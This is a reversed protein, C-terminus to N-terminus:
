PIERALDQGKATLNSFFIFGDERYSVKLYKFVTSGDKAKEVAFLSSRKLRDKFTLHGLEWVM